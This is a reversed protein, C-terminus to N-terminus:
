LASAKELATLMDAKVKQVKDMERQLYARGAEADITSDPEHFGRMWVNMGTMASDLQQITNELIVKQDASVSDLKATLRRKQMYLSGMKPMVEDHVSMVSDYLALNPSDVTPQQEENKKSCSAMVLISSFALTTLSLRMSHFKDFTINRNYGVSVPQSVIMLKVLFPSFLKLLNQLESFFAM